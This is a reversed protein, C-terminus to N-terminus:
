SIKLTGKPLCNAIAARQINIEVQAAIKLIVFNDDLSSICGAIGGTTVVEDGKALGSLLDKQAKTRKSQSRWLFLYFVLIVGLMVMFFGSGQQAQAAAHTASM